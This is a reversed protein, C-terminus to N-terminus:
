PTNKPLARFSNKKVVAGSDGRLTLAARPDYVLNTKASGASIGGLGDVAVVGQITANGSVTVVSGTSGQRNVCYLLGYFSGNGGLSFTGNEIILAGPSSSANVVQGNVSIDCPGQIVVPAGNVSNLAAATSPCTGAAWFTGAKTAARELSQLSSSGIASSSSSADTRGTPPEVQGKSSDYNLCQASTLGTCRVVLDAPQGAPGPRISPPEAYAGLTDVIVKRGQNTSAFWNATVVNNPFNVQVLTGTVLAVLSAKNCGGFATSRVWVTGDQNVDYAARSDVATTWYEEGAANDRVTTTWGTNSPSGPCGSAFDVGTYGNTVASAQPCMSSTSSANCSTPATATNPWSRGLQLAEANLAAEALNFSSERTREARSQNQQSGIELWLAIALALMFFLLFMTHILAFGSEERFRESM